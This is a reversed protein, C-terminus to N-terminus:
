TNFAQHRSLMNGQEFLVKMGDSIVERTGNDLPVTAWGEDTIGFEVELGNGYYARVSTLKGYDELQCRLVAGFQTTWGLNELYNAPTTTIIVLDVDSDPRASGRAYSGVLALALIDPQAHAWDTVERLLDAARQQAENTESGRM